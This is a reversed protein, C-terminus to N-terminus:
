FRLMSPPITRNTNLLSTSRGQGKSSRCARHIHITLWIFIVRGRVKDDVDTVNQVFVVEYGFYDRMVRRLVDTTLYNRAHGLHGADYVTPGCCYWNVKRGTPDVPIFPTKNRTLSNHLLLPSSSSSARPPSWTPPDRNELAM